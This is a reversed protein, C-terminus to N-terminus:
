AEQTNADGASGSSSTTTTSSAAAKKATTKKATTKKATRGGTRRASAKEVSERYKVPVDTGDPNTAPKDLEEFAKPTAQLRRRSITLEHGTSTDKVRVRDTAPM